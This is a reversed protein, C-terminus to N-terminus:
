RSCESGSDDCERMPKSLMENLSSTESEDDGLATMSRQEMEAKTMTALPRLLPDAICSEPAPPPGEVPSAILPVNPLLAQVAVLEDITKKLEGVLEVERMMLRVLTDIENKRQRRVFASEVIAVSHSGEAFVAYDVLLYPVPYDCTAAGPSERAEIEGAQNVAVRFIITTGCDTSRDVPNEYWFQMGVSSVFVLGVFKRSTCLGRLAQAFLSRAICEPVIHLAPLGECEDVCATTADYPALFVETLGCLLTKSVKDSSRDSLFFPEGKATVLKTLILETTEAFYAPSVLFTSFLDTPVPPPPPISACGSALVVEEGGSLMTDIEAFM